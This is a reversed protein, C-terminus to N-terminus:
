QKLDKLRVHEAIVDTKGTLPHIALTWRNKEGARLHILAEEALGQPFFHIYALGNAIPTEMRAVEVDEIVLDGPLDVPSRIIKNDVTFQSPPTEESKDGEKVAELESPSLVTRNSSEVWYTQDTSRAGQKLDIVLRYTAGKLKATSQLERSLTSLKRMASRMQNKQGGIRPLALGVVAAIIAMVFM